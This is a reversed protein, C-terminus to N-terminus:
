DFYQWFVLLIGGRYSWSVAVIGGRCRGRYRWFGDFSQWFVVFYMMFVMM